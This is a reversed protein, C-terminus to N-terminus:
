NNLLQNRDGLRTKLSVLKRDRWVLIEILKDVPTLGVLNVLHNDDEIIEGDYKVVVDAVKLGTREAPSNPTIGSLRAGQYRPLGMAIAQQANFQSDLHVGLFARVVRGNAILQEAVVRAMNIPIAFGIGESGGSNSAIATNLGIVEGRLNLLPGGSNGPNISADTQLFDQYRVGQPGLELDRRGKASIIGYTVSHSLGFPSGVAIVFDGIEVNRSDGLRAAFLNGANIALVAIDTEPDDWVGIPQVVRGDSLSIDIKALPSDKVVHRNTLVYFKGAVELIVGSGAEEVTKSGGVATKEVKEAEIHAVNPRVLRVVKKLLNAQQAWAEYEAEVEAQLRARQQSTEPPPLEQGQASVALLAITCSIAVFFPM